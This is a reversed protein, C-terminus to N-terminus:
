LPNLIVIEARDRAQDIFATMDSEIKNETLTREVEAHVEEFKPVISAPSTRRFRPVYLDRYYEEIEKSALVVFSRFRFDLYKEIDVREHVIERLNDSTLGVRTMRQRLEEPTSFYRVLEALAAEVEKDEGHLYPLKQAEQFIFRQDILLELAHKLDDARPPEIPTNPQLALQWFLDSYTILEGNVTVVMKDVVVGRATGQTQGSVTISIFLTTCLVAVQTPKILM